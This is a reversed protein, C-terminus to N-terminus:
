RDSGKDGAALREIREVLPQINVVAKAQGEDFYRRCADALLGAAERLDADLPAPEAAEAEIAFIWMDAASTAAERYWTMQLLARGAATRPTTDHTM